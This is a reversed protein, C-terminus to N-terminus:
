RGQGGGQPPAVLVGRPASDSGVLVVAKRTGPLSVPGRHGTSGVLLGDDETRRFRPRGLVEYCGDSASKALSM